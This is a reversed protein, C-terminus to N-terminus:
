VMRKSFQDIPEAFRRINTDLLLMAPFSGEIGRHFRPVVKFAQEGTTEHGLIQKMAPVDPNFLIWAGPM